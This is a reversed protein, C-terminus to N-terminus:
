SLDGSPQGLSALVIERVSAFDSDTLGQEPLRLYLANLLQDAALVAALHMVTFVVALAGLFEHLDQIWVRASGRALRAGMLLGGLVSAGLLAAALLGSARAVYWWIALDVRLAPGNRPLMCTVLILMASVSLGGIWIQSAVVRRAPSDTM